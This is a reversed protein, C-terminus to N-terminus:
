EEGENRGQQDGEGQQDDKDGQDDRDSAGQEEIGERAAQAEIEQLKANSFEKQRRQEATEEKRKVGFVEEELFGFVHKRSKPGLSYIEKLRNAFFLQYGEDGEPNNEFNGKGHLVFYIQLGILSLLPLTRM